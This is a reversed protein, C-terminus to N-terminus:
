KPHRSGSDLDFRNRSIHESAIHHRRNNPPKPSERAANEASSGRGNLQPVKRQCFLTASNEEESCWAKKMTMFEERPAKEPRKQPLRESPSRKGSNIAERTLKKWELIKCAHSDPMKQCWFEQMKEFIWLRCPGKKHNELDKCFTEHMEHIEHKPPRLGDQPAGERHRPLPQENMKQRRVCVVSQAHAVDSCWWAHMDGVHQMFDGSPQNNRPPKDFGDLNTPSTNRQVSRLREVDEEEAPTSHSTLLLESLLLLLVSLLQLRWPRSYLTGRM